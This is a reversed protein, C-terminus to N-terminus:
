QLVCGEKKELLAEKEEESLFHSNIEQRQANWWAPFQIQCGAPCSCHRYTPRVGRVAVHCGECNTTFKQSETSNEDSFKVNIKPLKGMLQLVRFVYLRRNDLSWYAGHKKVVNIRDIDSATLKGAAIKLITLNVDEGDQFTKSITNQSFKIDGPSLDKFQSLYSAIGGGIALATAGLLVGIEVADNRGSNTSRAHSTHPISIGANNWSRNSYSKEDSDTEDESESDSIDGMYTIENIQAGGSQAFDETGIHGCDCNCHKFTVGVNRLNVHCGGNKTTYRRSMSHNNYDIMRVEITDLCGMRKLVRFVYLRRNDISYYFGNRTYVRIMSIDEVDTDKRAIQRILDNVSGDGNKFSAKISNQTFKVQDPSIFVM